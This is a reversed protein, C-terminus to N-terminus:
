PRRVERTLPIQSIFTLEPDPRGVGKRVAVALMAVLSETVHLECLGEATISM